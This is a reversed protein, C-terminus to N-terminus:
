PPLMRLLAMPAKTPTVLPNEKNGGDKLFMTYIAAMFRENLMWDDITILTSPTFRHDLHYLPYCPMLADPMRFGRLAAMYATTTTLYGGASDGTVLIRKIQMGLQKEAQTVIWVYAQYCDNVAAPHPSDPALRYDISFVPVGLQNALYRTINQHSASGMSIFGGGHIHIVIDTPTPKNIGVQSKLQYYNAPWLIRMMVQKDPQFTKENM